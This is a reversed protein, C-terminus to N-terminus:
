KKVVGKPRGRQGTGIRRGLAAEVQNKFRDNGVPYNRLLSQRIQHIDIEPIAVKFLERYTYSREQADSGLAKFLEHQSLLSDARSWANARYSSWRYEDPTTVMGAVVPNLEIYRYCTLM